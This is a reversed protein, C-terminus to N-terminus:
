ARETLSEIFGRRWATIDNKRIMNMSSEWRERREALPMTIAREIGDAVNDIDYPNVLVADKLERAAGTLHSLVLVGPDGPDQAAIFEKAV